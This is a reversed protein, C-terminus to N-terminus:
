HLQRTQKKNKKQQQNYKAKYQRLRDTIRRRDAARMESGDGSDKMFADAIFVKGSVSAFAVSYVVRAGDNHRVEAAAVGFGKLPKFNRPEEGRQVRRLDAGIASRVDNPWSRVTELFAGGDGDWFELERDPM